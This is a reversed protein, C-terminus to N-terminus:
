RHKPVVVVVDCPQRELTTHQVHAYSYEVIFFFVYYLVLAVHNYIMMMMSENHNHIYFLLSLLRQLGGHLVGTNRDQKAGRNLGLFFKRIM